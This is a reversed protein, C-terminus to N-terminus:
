NTLTAVLLLSDKMYELSAVKATVNQQWNLAEAREDVKQLQHQSKYPKAMSFCM